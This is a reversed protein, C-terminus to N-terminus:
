NVVEDHLLSLTTTLSRVFDWGTTKRFFQNWPEWTGLSKQSFRGHDWQTFSCFFAQCNSSVLSEERLQSHFDWPFGMSETTFQSQPTVVRQYVTVYSHFSGGNEIPLDVIEIAM